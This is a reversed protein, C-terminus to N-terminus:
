NTIINNLIVGKMLLGLPVFNFNQPMCLEDALFLGSQGLTRCEGNARADCPVFFPCVIENFNGDPM